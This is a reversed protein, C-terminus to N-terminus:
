EHHYSAGNQIQQARYIQEVVLLRILQHPFVLPSMSWTFHAKARVVESVGYAGGIVLVVKRSSNLLGSLLTSLGPSDLETGREDLLIVFNDSSLRSVIRESEEQRARDGELSSHPLMVWEISFPTRLRKEYEEIGVSIWAEHKKGVTLIKIPM